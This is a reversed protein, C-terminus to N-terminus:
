AAKRVEDDGLKRWLEQERVVLRLRFIQAAVVRRRTIGVGGIETQVRELEGVAVVPAMPDFPTELGM